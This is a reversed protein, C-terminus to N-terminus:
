LGLRAAIGRVTSVYSSSHNYQYLANTYNGSKAGNAALYRGASMVADDVDTIDRTGNGDGDMAYHAFTAPMFQM